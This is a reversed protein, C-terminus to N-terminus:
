MVVNLRKHEGKKLTIALVQSKGAETVLKVLHRGPTVEYDTIPTSLGTDKDDIYAHANPDCKISLFATDAAAPKEDAVVARASRQGAAAPWAPALAGSLALVSVFVRVITRTMDSVESVASYGNSAHAGLVICEKAFSRSETGRVAAVGASLPGNASGTLAPSRACWEPWV